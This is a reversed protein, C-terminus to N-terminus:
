GLLSPIETQKHRQIVPLEDVRSQATANYDLKLGKSLNYAVDYMRKTTLAKNYTVPLSINPDFTNRMQMVSLQRRLETRM